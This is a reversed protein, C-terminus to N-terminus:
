YDSYKLRFSGETVTVISNQIPNYAKFLFTAQIIKKTKDINTINLQGTNSADTKFIDNVQPTNKYSGLGMLGDLLYSSVNIGSGIHAGMALSEFGVNANFLFTTDNLIQAKLCNACNSPVYDQGNLKCKFYLNDAAPNDEKKCTAFISSLVFLIILIKIFKM